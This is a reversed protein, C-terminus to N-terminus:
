SEHAHNYMKQIDDPLQDPLMKKIQDESGDAIATQYYWCKYQLMDHTKKLKEIEREVALKQQEFIEKRDKFTKSGEKCLEMFRKIDKIELGSRKLCEIVRLQELEQEGFMRIGASRQLNPFLGENDYYRLTSVPLAFMKSVEGIGYM